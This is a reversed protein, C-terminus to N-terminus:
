FKYYQAMSNNEDIQQQTPFDLFPQQQNSSTADLPPQQQQQNPLPVPMTNNSSQQQQQQQPQQQQNYVPFASSPPPHQFGLDSLRHTLQQIHPHPPQSQSIVSPSSPSAAGSTPHHSAMMRNSTIPAPAETNDQRELKRQIRQREQYLRDALEAKRGAVSLNRERLFDKLEAVTVDNFNVKLLKKDLQEQDLAIPSIQRTNAVPNRQIQIPLPKTYQQQQHQQQLISQQPGTARTSASSSDLPEMLPQQQHQQQQYDPINQQMPSYANEQNVSNDFLPPVFPSQIIQKKASYFISPLSSSRRRRHGKYAPTMLHNNNTTNVTPNPQQVQQSQHQQAQPSTMSMESQPSFSQSLPPPPPMSSAPMAVEDITPMSQHYFSPDMNMSNMDDHGSFPFWDERDNLPLSSSSSEIPDLFCMDDFLHPDYSSTLLGASPVQQHEHHNHQHEPLPLSSSLYSFDDQSQQQQPQQQSYPPHSLM